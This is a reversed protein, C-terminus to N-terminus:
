SAFNSIYTIQVICVNSTVLCQASVLKNHVEEFVYSEFQDLVYNICHTLHNEMLIWTFSFM